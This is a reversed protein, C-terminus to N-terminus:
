VYIQKHCAGAELRENSKVVVNLDTMQIIFAPKVTLRLLCTQLKKFTAYESLGQIKTSATTIV